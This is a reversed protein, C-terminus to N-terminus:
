IKASKSLQHSIQKITASSSQFISFRTDHYSRRGPNPEYVDSDVDVAGTETLLRHPILAAGMLGTERNKPVHVPRDLVDAKLQCLAPNGALGGSFCIHSVGTGTAQEARSLIERSLYNMGEAVGRVMDASGHATSLGLFAGRLDPDWWPTREGDLYPLFLPAPEDSALAEDLSTELDAGPLFREMAWQLRTAAGQSPGGLQWLAPGWEVSLLGEATHRTDAMVGFVDSTGSISYAVGAVLAGSGLVCSWTDISGCHVPVDVLASLPYPLGQRVAGLTAFPSHSGPLIEPNINLVDLVNNGSEGLARTMPTQSITDSAAIGTLMLNVFDKPEIIKSLRAWSDPEQAKLWLLRALPDYPSLQETANRVPASADARIEALTEASRSDQFTIAPRISNGAQDLFVQTRTFGCGTVAQIDSFDHGMGALEACGSVFATWWTMPDVEFRSKGYGGIKLPKRVSGLFTGDASVIALRLSSGGLDFALVHSM